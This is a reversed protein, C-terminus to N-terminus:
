AILLSLVLKEHIWTGGGVDVGGRKSIILERSKLSDKNKLAEIYRITNTSAKWNELKKSDAMSNANAYVAGDIIKFEVNLEANGDNYVKVLENMGIVGEHTFESNLIDRYM